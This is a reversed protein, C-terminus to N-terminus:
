RAGRTLCFAVFLSASTRFTSPSVTVRWASDSIVFSVASRLELLLIPFLNAQCIRLGLAGSDPLRKYDNDPPLVRTISARHADVDNTVLKGAVVRRRNTGLRPFSQLLRIRM